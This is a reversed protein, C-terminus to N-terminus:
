FVDGKVKFFSLYIFGYLKTIGSYVFGRLPPTNINQAEAQSVFDISKRKDTVM